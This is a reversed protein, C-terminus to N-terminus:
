SKLAPCREQGQTRLFRQGLRNGFSQGFGPFVRLDAAVHPIVGVRAPNRLATPSKAGDKQRCKRLGSVVGHILVLRYVATMM